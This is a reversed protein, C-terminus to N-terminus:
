AFSSRTRQGTSTRVASASSVVRGVRRDAGGLPRRVRLREDAVRDAVELDVDALRELAGNRGLGVEEAPVQQVRGAGAAGCRSGRARLRIAEKSAGYASSSSAPSATGFTLAGIAIQQGVSYAAVTSAGATGKSSRPWCRRSYAAGQPTFPVAASVANVGLVLM